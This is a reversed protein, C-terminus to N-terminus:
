FDKQRQRELTAILPGSSGGSVYVRKKEKKRRKLGELVRAKPITSVINLSQKLM